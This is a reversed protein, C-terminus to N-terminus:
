NSVAVLRSFKFFVQAGIKDQPEVVLNLVEDVHRFVAHVLHSLFGSTERDRNRKRSLMPSKDCVNDLLKCGFESSIANEVVFPILVFQNPDISISFQFPVIALLALKYDRKEGLM